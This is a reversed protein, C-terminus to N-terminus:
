SPNLDDEIDADTVMQDEGWGSGTLIQKSARIIDSERGFIKRLATTTDMAGFTQLLATDNFGLPAGTGDTVTHWVERDRADRVELRLMSNVITAVALVLQSMSLPSPNGSDRMHKPLAQRQWHQLSRSPVDSSCVLRIGVDGPADVVTPEIPVQQATAQRLLALSDVVPDPEFSHAVEDSSSSTAAHFTNTM